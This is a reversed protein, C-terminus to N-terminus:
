FQLTDPTSILVIPLVLEALFRIVLIIEGKKWNWVTLEPTNQQALFLVGLFDGSIQLSLDVLPCQVDLNHNIIRIGDIISPHV